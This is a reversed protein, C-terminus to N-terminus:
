SPGALRQLARIIAGYGTCRCINGALAETIETAEPTPNREFLETAAVVIGPTCFGCQVAGAEHMAQQVGNLVDGRAVGEVTTVESGQVDAALVLCSCVVEGDLIVSCSG